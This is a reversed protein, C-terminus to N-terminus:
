RSVKTKKVIGKTADLRIYDGTKFTKTAYETGVVCPIGFERCIIAAHSTIGGEDTVLGRCKRLFPTFDQRTMSTIMIEGERVDPLDKNTHVVRAFGEAIGKSAASGTLEDTEKEGGPGLEQKAIQKAKKGSYMQITEGIQIILWAKEREAIEEPSVRKGKELFEIIERNTLLNTQELNLNTRRGLEIYFKQVAYDLKERLMDRYDRLFIIDSFFQLLLRMKEDPELEKLAKEREEKRKKFTKSIKDLEKEPESIKSIQEAFHERPFPTHDFGYMPIYAYKRAHEDVLKNFEKESIKGKQSAIRLAETREEVVNNMKLPSFFVKLLRATKEEDKTIALLKKEVALALPNSIRYVMWMRVYFKPEADEAFKKYLGSLEQSSLKPLEEGFDKEATELVSELFERAESYAKKLFEGDGILNELAQNFKEYEDSDVFYDTSKGDFFQLTRDIKTGYRNFFPRGFGLNWAIAMQPALRRTGIKSWM